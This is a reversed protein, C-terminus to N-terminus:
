ILPKVTKKRPWPSKMAGIIPPGGGALAQAAQMGAIVASEVAGGLGTFLWDGALALNDYGSSDAELRYRNTGPLDIVYRESPTYNSRVYQARFREEGTGGAADLLKSWDIEDGNMALPYLHGVFERSWALANAWAQDTQERGFAPDRGGPMSAPNKMPGTFYVITGPAEGEPWSERPAVFSMDSWSELPQGYATGTVNGMKWGLDEIPPTWWLQMSQTQVSQLRETMQRWDPHAEILRSCVYPITGLSVGLVVADFDRGQVLEIVEVDDWDTFPDELNAGRRKLEAAQRPDIQDYLPSSPWSPLGGVDVLPEYSDRTVDVQRAIRLTAISKGDASPVLEDLRHFFRFSVGRARCIEYLPGFVADGMGSGMKWFLSGRYDGVLMLLHRLGMGASMKPKTTDGDEYAFFYDYYGRVAASEVALKTAGHRGLWEALDYDDIAMYGKLFIGDRLMGRIMAQMLDILIFLRRAENHGALEHEWEDQLWHHFADVGALITHHDIARDRGESSEARAAADHAVDLATVPAGTYTSDLDPRGLLSEYPHFDHHAGRTTAALRLEDHPFDRIVTRIWGIMMRVYGLVSPHDPGEGPEDGTMPTELPWHIWEDGIQEEWCVKNHPLFAEDWTRLPAGVPRDLEGYAERIMRFANYYFGGWVHLGHEEIRDHMEENRGSAGKGGLRWGMQYVTVDLADRLEPTRSLYYAATMAACGGGIIAVRKRSQNM